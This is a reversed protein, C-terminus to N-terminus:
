KKIIKKLIVNIFPLEEAKHSLANQIGQISLLIAVILVISSIIDMPRWLINIFRSILSFIILPIIYILFLRLSQKSHFIVYKNNSFLFIIISLPGIYSLAALIKGDKIEKIEFKYKEEKEM